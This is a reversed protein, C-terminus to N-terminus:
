KILESVGELLIVVSKGSFQSKLILKLFLIHLSDPYFSGPLVPLRHAELKHYLQENEMQHNQVSGTPIRHAMKRALRANCVPYFLIKFRHLLESLVLTRGAKAQLCACHFNLKYELAREFIKKDM